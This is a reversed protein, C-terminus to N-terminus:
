LAHVMTLFSSSYSEPSFHTRVHHEAQLVLSTRLSNNNMLEFAERVAEQIDGATYYKGTQNHLISSRVGDSDTSLVPCHCAMAELVSYPAGEVKSTSCLFGGSNAIISFYEPMQDHPINTLNVIRDKLNLQQKIMEFKAREGPESLLPDEFMWVQLDSVHFRTLEACIFLFESWNKNDEIRGVWAAIPSAPTQVYRYSFNEMDMCNNFNFQPMQPFIETFLQRIHPTNPNLLGNSYTRINHSAENLTIRAQTFSGLGQVEYILKGHFGMARFKALFRYASTVVIVDYKGRDLIQKIEIDNNTVFVPTDHSNQLGSGGNLYLSHCQHGHKQLAISRLRNLTEVGGSPIYFAFLINM